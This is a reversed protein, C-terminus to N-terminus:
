VVVSIRFETITVAAGLLTINSLDLISILVYTFSTESLRLRRRIFM